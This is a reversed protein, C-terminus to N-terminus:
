QALFAVIKELVVAPQERHPVHGIGPLIEVQAPGGSLRGITEPHYATGYEDNEGHLALVPCQVKPLVGEVSWDAFDPHLWNEIWADRVWASKDGHYKSLRALQQEDRFQERAVRISSLTLDEAYVQAAITILAVCRPRGQGFVAACEIAMGGGVSHGLAVFSDLDLQKCLEPLYLRAEEAVFDVSPLEVRPASRGFGLRDYAVVERGTAQSLQAPFDRWLEVCGLSDHLLVFPAADPQRQAPTWRRAFLRGQPHEVYHDSSAVQPQAHNMHRTHFFRSAPGADFALASTIVCVAKM